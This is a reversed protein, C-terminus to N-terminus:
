FLRRAAAEELTVFRGRSMSALLPADAVPAGGDGTASAWRGTIRGPLSRAALLVM